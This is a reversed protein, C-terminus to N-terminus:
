ISRIRRNGADVEFLKWKNGISVRRLRDWRVGVALIADYGLSRYFECQGIGRLISNRNSGKCEVAISYDRILLDASCGMGSGNYQGKKGNSALSVWKDIESDHLVDMFYGYVSDVVDSEDETYVEYPDRRRGEGFCSTCPMYGHYRAYGLSVEVLGAYLSNVYCCPDDHYVKGNEAILVSDSHEMETHTM